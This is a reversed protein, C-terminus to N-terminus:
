SISYIAKPEPFTKRKNFGSPTVASMKNQWTQRETNPHTIGYGQFQSTQISPLRWDFNGGWVETKEASVFDLHECHSFDTSQSLGATTIM